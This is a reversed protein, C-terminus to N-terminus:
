GQWEVVIKDAMARLATTGFKAVVTTLSIAYATGPTVTIEQEVVDPQLAYPVSMAVAVPSSYQNGSTHDGVQGSVNQGWGWLNGELDVGHCIPDTASVPVNCFFYKFVHGGVVAVPSSAATTSGDGRIGNDGAGWAWLAGATDLGFATTAGYVTKFSQFAHGGLVAVPSSKAVITGDGLVGSTNLGWGWLSGDAKLAWMSSGSIINNNFIQAFSHGGIVAVPSSKNVVTGDGLQGNTNTGWAWLTGDSKLGYFATSSGALQTFVHGGVVAVPSSKNVVTGDGLLGGAGTGWTWVGGSTDLAAKTNGTSRCPVDAFVVAGVVAVPSSKVTTSGDGFVGQSNNLGWAWLRGDNDLAFGGEDLSTVRRVKLGGLVPIPSSRNTNDNVGLQGRTNDGWSWLNGLSDLGYTFANYAFIQTFKIAGVVPVPASRSTVTGDGIQGVGNSGWGWLNGDQAIVHRSDQGGSEFKKDAYFTKYSKVKVSGVGGPATFTGNATFEQTCKNRGM